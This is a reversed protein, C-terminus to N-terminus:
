RAVVSRRCEGNRWEFPATRPHAPVAFNLNQGDELMGVAVGVVEGNATLVPGGSSGHSIPASIQLLDRGRFSRTAAVVGASISKELGEPNGLAFVTTGPKPQAPALKLPPSAIEGDPKLVALDNAADVAVLKLPLRVAGLDLYPNGGRVVHENTVIRNGDVCFGTGLTVIRGTPSKVVITFVSKSAQAYIRAAPESEQGLTSGAILSLVAFTRLCNMSEM